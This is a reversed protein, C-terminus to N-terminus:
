KKNVKTQDVKRPKRNKDLAVFTLTATAVRDCEDDGRKRQAYAVISVNMSTSGVSEVTAFISVLDGIYVPKLFNFNNVSVTVVRGGAYRYAAISGAIDVQSMLWGGFIDGAANTDAPM